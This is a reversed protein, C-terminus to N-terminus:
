TPSALVHAATGPVVVVLDIYRRRRDPNVFRWAVCVVPNPQAEIADAVVAM